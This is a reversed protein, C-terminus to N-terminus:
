SIGPCWLLFSDERYWDVGTYDDAMTKEVERRAGTEPPYITSGSQTDHGAMLHSQTLLFCSDFHTGFLPKPDEERAVLRQVPRGQSLQLVEALIQVDNDNPSARRVESVQRLLAIIVCDCSGCDCDGCDGCDCNCDGCDGCADGSTCCDCCCLSMVCHNLAEGFGQCCRECMSCCDCFCCLLCGDEGVDQSCSLCLQDCCNNPNYRSTGAGYSSKYHGHQASQTFPYIPAVVKAAGERHIPTEEALHHHNNNRSNLLATSQLVIGDAVDVNVQDTSIGNARYRVWVIHEAQRLVPRFDSLSSQSDSTHSPLLVLVRRAAEASVLAAQTVVVENVDALTSIVDAEEEGVVRVPIKTDRLGQVMGSVDSIKPDQTLVMVDCYQVKAPHRHDGLGMHLKTLLTTAVGYGCQVCDLARDAREHGPGEHRVTSFPIVTRLDSCGPCQGETAKQGNEQPQPQPQHQITINAGERSSTHTGGYCEGRDDYVDAM